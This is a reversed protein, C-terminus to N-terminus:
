EHLMRQGARLEFEPSGGYLDTTTGVYGPRHWKTSNNARYERRYHPVDIVCRRLPRRSGYRTIFQPAVLPFRFLDPVTYTVTVKAAPYGDVSASSGSCSASSPCLYVATVTLPAGGCASSFSAGINLMGSLESIAMICAAAQDSASDIGGSNRLAAVRAANQVSIFGYAYLGFDFVVLMLPFLLPAILAFEM